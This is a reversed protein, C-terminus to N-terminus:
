VHHIVEVMHHQPDVSVTAQSGADEGIQHLIDYVRRPGKSVAIMLPQVNSPARIAVTYGITKALSEIAGDLSGSWEFSVVRDLEGPVIDPPSVSAARPQWQGIRGIEADVETMSKQLALEANPMGTVDVTTPIEVSACGALMSGAFIALAGGWPSWTITPAFRTTM